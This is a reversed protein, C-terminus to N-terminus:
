TEFEKIILEEDEHLPAFYEDMMEDTVEEISAPKWVPKQDKNILIARCGEHFDHSKMFRQSLRYEMTFVEPFQMKLGIQLQRFTVKLSTPSKTSLINFLKNGFDDNNNRLKKFVSEVTSGSFLYNIQALRKELGFKPIESEKMHYKNLIYDIKEASLLKNDTRLLEDELNKLKESPVFHTALGMHYADAGILRYGTLAMFQGLNYPLRSLFFTGGVDPFFGISTEPMTLMTRETAIRYKGHISLGCGGGMTIGDMVAIYPVKLVGILYNMVYEERFFDKHVTNSPDNAQASRSVAVIDGGACFAKGGTGKVFIFPVSSDSDCKKLMPYLKRVMSINLANLTRPRNLTVILKGSINKTLIEDFGGSLLRKSRILLFHQQFISRFVM